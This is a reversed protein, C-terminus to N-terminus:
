CSGDPFWAVKDSYPSLFVDEKKEVINHHIVWVQWENHNIEDEDNYIYVLGYSDPAEILALQNLEQIFDNFIESYGNRCSFFQFVVEGNMGVRNVTFGTHKSFRDFFDETKKPIGRSNIWGHLLVM